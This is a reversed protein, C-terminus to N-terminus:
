EGAARIIWNVPLTTNNKLMMEGPTLGAGRVFYYSNGTAKQLETLVAVNGYGYFCVYFDGTVPLSPIEMEAWKSRQPSTFYMIQTDTFHYLLNLNSDRIEVVFPLEPPLTKMTSNWGDTGYVLVRGLKWDPKPATFKVAQAVDLVSSASFTANMKSLNTGSDQTLVNLTTATATKPAEAMAYLSFAMICLVALLIKVKKLQGGRNCRQAQM